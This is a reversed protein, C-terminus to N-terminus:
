QKQVLVLQVGPGQLDFGSRGPEADRRQRVRRVVATAALSPPEAGLPILGRAELSRDTRSVGALPRRRRALAM